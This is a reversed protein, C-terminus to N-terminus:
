LPDHTACFPSYRVACPKGKIRRLPPSYDNRNRSFSVSDKGKDHAHLLNALILQLHQRRKKSKNKILGEKKFLEELFVGAQIFEDTDTFLTTDLITSNDKDAM